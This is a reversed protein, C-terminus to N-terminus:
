RQIPLIISPNGGHSLLAVLPVIAGVILEHRAIEATKSTDTWSSEGGQSGDAPAPRGAAGIRRREEAAGVIGGVAAPDPCLVFRRLALLMGALEFPTLLRRGCM